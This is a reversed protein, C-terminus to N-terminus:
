AAGSRGMPVRVRRHTAPLSQRMLIKEIAPQEM